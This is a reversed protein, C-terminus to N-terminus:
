GRPRLKRIADALAQVRDLEAPSLSDLIQGLVDERSISRSSKPPMPIGNESHKRYCTRCLGRCFPKNDCWLCKPATTTAPSTASGNAVCSLYTGVCEARNCQICPGNM